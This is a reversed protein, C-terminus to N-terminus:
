FFLLALPLITGVILLGWILRRSRNYKFALAVGTATSAILGLSMLFIYIKLPLTRDRPPAEETESEEEGGRGGAPAAEPRKERRPRREQREPAANKHISAMQSAVPSLAGLTGNENWRFTQYAGTFAFFLISPAFLVGLYLHIQRLKKMSFALKASLYRFRLPFEAANQTPM